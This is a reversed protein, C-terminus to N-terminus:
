TSFSMFKGNYIICTIFIGTRYINIQILFSRTTPFNSTLTFSPSSIISCNTDFTIIITTSTSTFLCRKFLSKRRSSFYPFYNNFIFDSMSNSTFNISIYIFSIWSIWFTSIYTSNTSTIRTSTNFCPYITRCIRM